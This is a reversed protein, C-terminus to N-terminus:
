LQNPSFTELALAVRDMVEQWNGYERQRFLRMSAYWFTTDGAMGWRWDPIHRLLLWTPKGLGGALHAVVTDVTIVLDCNMVMAANEVFDWTQNIEEQCGVFRDFFKCEALQESGLGKQLSLFSACTTETIPAFTELPASRGRLVARETKPNGQWNIGIIPRKESSLKQKWYSIKEEPVKIYSENILPHHPRVNLHRPLSLLPLWEGTTLQHVDEPSYLETAIGSTRILGHLKTLTCLAVNMGRKRILPVYRIFQLIDGLGQEGMLILKNESPSNLEDWKKLSTQGHLEGKKERLRWEYEEWGNEYDGFFLLCMSLNFHPMPYDENLSIVKRYITISEQLKGQESLAVGLNNLAEPRNPEIALAKRYCDVAEELEGEEKLATGLNNLAEPYHPQIALAKRHCDIAEQFEGQEKLTTGLNNLADLYHPQIALAKRYCDIAEQLKGQEKVATGLNNLAEPYNPKVELAKKLFVIMEETNNEMYRIVALNGFISHHNSGEKILDKYIIEASEYNKQEMFALAQHLKEREADHNKGQKERTKGKNKGQKERSKGAKGQKKYASSKGTNGLEWFGKAM